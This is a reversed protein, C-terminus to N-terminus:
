QQTQLNTSISTLNQRVLNEFDESLNHEDNWYNLQRSLSAFLINGTLRRHHKLLVPLENDPYQQALFVLAANVEDITGVCEFPKESAIGSLQELLPTLSEKELLDEGFIEKVASPKLFPSLMIYTFLCKPCNCCWSNTKSGVNCSRFIPLYAPNRSFLAAIQLENLPRLLSFYHIDASIFKEVFNTFDKEFDYSKSYQHNIKTGPITPENASSENSLAIYNYGTIASALVSVFAVIASFPTHGNLFGAQNLQLLTPDLSREVKFFRDELGAIKVSELTAKGPNIAFAMRPQDMNKLLELSVLSDKGGGVPIIVGGIGTAKINRPLVRTDQDFSFRLFDQEDPEIGNTYFFEGLGHFFLRTWWQRQEPNLRFPKIHIKPSCATKWYSIVEAMGLYLLLTELFEETIEEPLGNELPIKYAPYFDYKGSLNFHYRVQLFNENITWRFSEYTFVPFEKRLKQYIYKKSDPM